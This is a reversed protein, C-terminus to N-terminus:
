FPKVAVMVVIVILALTPVENVQRYFKAPRRNRDEAFEKRWRAFYHHAVSMGDVAALKVWIWGDSWVVLGPIGALSPSANRDRTRAGFPAECWQPSAIVAASLLPLLAPLM